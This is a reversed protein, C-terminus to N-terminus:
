MSENRRRGMEEDEYDGEEVEEQGGDQQVYEGREEDENFDVDDDDGTADYRGVEIPEEDGGTNEEGRGEGEEDEENDILGKMGEEGYDSGTEDSHRKSERVYEDNDQLELLTNPRMWNNSKLSINQYQQQSRVNSASLDDYSRDDFLKNQNQFISPGQTLGSIATINMNGTSHGPATRLYRDHTEECEAYMSTKTHSPLTVPIEGLGRTHAIITSIRDETLTLRNEMISM